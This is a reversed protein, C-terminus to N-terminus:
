ANEDADLSSFDLVECSHGTFAIFRDFDARSIATTMDNRLPHFNLPDCDSLTKELIFRVPKSAPNALAFATVSGPTVGLHEVMLEAPAFSLRGTGILKHVKNLKLKTHAEASILVLQGAKDKMFLNKSHGGPMHTKVDRSEEVTFTPAHQYTRVPIELRDFLQFLDDPTFAM